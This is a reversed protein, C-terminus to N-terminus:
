WKFIVGLRGQTMIPHGVRQILTKGLQQCIKMCEGVVFRINKSVRHKFFNLYFSLRNQSKLFLETFLTTVTYVIYSTLGM